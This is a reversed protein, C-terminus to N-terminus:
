ALHTFLGWINEIALMSTLIASVEAGIRTNHYARRFFNYVHFDLIIM